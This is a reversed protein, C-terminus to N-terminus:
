RALTQAIEGMPGRLRRALEGALLQRAAQLEAENQAAITAAVGEAAALDLRGNFYARATFEGPEALRAGHNVCADLVMRALLAAVEAEDRPVAVAAPLLLYHSADHSLAHRALPSTDLSPAPSM